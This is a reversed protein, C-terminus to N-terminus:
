ATRSRATTISCTGSAMWKWSRTTTPGASCPSSSGARTPSRVTRHSAWRRVRHLAHRRDLVLLLLQGQVQAGVVGRLLPPRSGEVAAAQRERRRDERGEAERRVRAHRRGHARSEAVARAADDAPQSDDDAHVRRDELQQLQGGWLGGFYMYYKGDDDKFVAPDMSFSNKIAEPQAKFPGAPTDGVAVGIRFVDQKDKVPFYLYYKGDKEAADPAWMQRRGVARGQHRARRTCRSRGASATSSSRSTTACPSTAAWTTRPFAPTSTTRATSRLDQRQVCPRVPRGHLDRGGAAPDPVEGPDITKRCSGAERAEAAPPPPPPEGEQWMRCPFHCVRCYEHNGRFHHRQM